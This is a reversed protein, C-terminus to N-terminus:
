EEVCFYVVFFVGYFVQDICCNGRCGCWRSGDVSYVIFNGCYWNSNEFCYEFFCGFEQSIWFIDDWFWVSCIVGEYDGIYVIFNVNDFRFFIIGQYVVM